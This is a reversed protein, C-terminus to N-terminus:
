YASAISININNISLTIAVAELSHLPPTCIIHRNINAYPKTFSFMYHPILFLFQKSIIKLNILLSLSLINPSM